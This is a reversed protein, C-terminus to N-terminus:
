QESHKGDEPGRAAVVWPLQGLTGAHAELHPKSNGHGDGYASLWPWRSVWKSRSQTVMECVSLFFSLNRSSTVLTVVPCWFHGQIPWFLM